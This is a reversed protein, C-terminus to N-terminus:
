LTPLLPRKQSAVGSAVGDNLTKVNRIRAPYGLLAAGIVGLFALSLQLLLQVEPSVVSVASLLLARMNWPSRIQTYLLNRMHSSTTACTTLLSRTVGLLLSGRSWYVSSLKHM